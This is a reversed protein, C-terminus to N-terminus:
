LIPEEKDTFFADFGDNEWYPLFGSADKKVSPNLQVGASIGANWISAALLQPTIFFGEGSSVTQLRQEAKVFDDSLSALEDSLKRRAQIKKIVEITVDKSKIEGRIDEKKDMRRLARQVERRTMKMGPRDGFLTILEPSTPMEESMTMFLRHGIKVYEDIAQTTPSQEIVFDREENEITKSGTEESAVPKLYIRKDLIPDRDRSKVGMEKLEQETIWRSYLQDRFTESFPKSVKEIFARDRRGYFREIGAVTAPGGSIRSYAVTDPDLIDKDAKTQDYPNHMTSMTSEAGEESVSETRDGRADAREIAEWNPDIKRLFDSLKTKDWWASVGKSGFLAELEVLTEFHFRRDADPGGLIGEESLRELKAIRRALSLM